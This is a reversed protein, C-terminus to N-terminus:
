KFIEQKANYWIVFDLDDLPIAIQESWQEMKREIELYKRNSFTKPIEPIVGCNVLTRLVHRDLIAIDRGLGINRLFHGAEKLGLGPMNKALWARLEKPDTKANLLQLFQPFFKRAKVISKAKNNHFRPGGRLERAISRATGNQLMDKQLLTQVTDWCVHANSQPTLICFCLERFLEKKDGRRRIEHFENVRNRVDTKIRGYVDKLEETNCIM